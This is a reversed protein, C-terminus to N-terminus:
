EPLKSTTVKTHRLPDFDHETDYERAIGTEPLGDRRPWCSSGGWCGRLQVRFGLCGKQHVRFRFLRRGREEPPWCWRLGLAAKPEALSDLILM